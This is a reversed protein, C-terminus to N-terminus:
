DGKSVLKKLDKRLLLLVLILLFGNAAYYMNEVQKQNNIYKIEYSSIDGSFVREANFGQGVLINDTKYNPLPERKEIKVGDLTAFIYENLKAEVVLEHQIGFQFNDTLSIGEFEGADNESYVIGFTNPGGQVTGNRIEARIGYNVDSTQFLNPWEASSESMIFNFKMKLVGDESTEIKPVKVSGTQDSWIYSGSFKQSSSFSESLSMVKDQTFPLISVLMVLLALYRDRNNGLSKKINNEVKTSGKV